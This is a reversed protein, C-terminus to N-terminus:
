QGTKVDIGNKTRFPLPIEHKVTYIHNMRNEVTDLPMSRLYDYITAGAKNGYTDDFTYSDNGWTTADPTTYYTTFDLLDRSVADYEVVKFGPNNYHQPTVGPCSIAIASVNRDTSDYLRRVEDMHTHGYLIAAINKRYHSVLNLFEDQWDKEGAKTNHAWMPKDRYADMGPPIHMAIYVQENDAAADALQAALWMIERDGDSQQDTHDVPTFARHFIVTNLVILRLNKVPRASYYGMTPNPDSVM